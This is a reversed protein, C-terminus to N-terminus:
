CSSTISPAAIRAYALESVDPADEYGVTFTQVPRQTLKTMVAVILSSDVGGSLYAGLPVESMLRVKVADDIAAVMREYCEEPGAAAPEVRAFDWYEGARIGAASVTM